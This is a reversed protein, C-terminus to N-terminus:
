GEHYVNALIYHAKSSGLDAARTYLELAKTRDQLLGRERNCYHLTLAGADNIDVRKMLEEVKEVDTPCNKSQLLSKWTVRWLYEKWLM